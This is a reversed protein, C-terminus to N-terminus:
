PKADKQMQRKKMMLRGGITDAEADEEAQYVQTSDGLVTKKLPVEEVSNLKKLTSVPHPPNEKDCLDKNKYNLTSSM